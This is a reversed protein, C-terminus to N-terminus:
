KQIEVLFQEAPYAISKEPGKTNYLSVSQACSTIPKTILSSKNKYGYRAMVPTSVEECTLVVKTDTILSPIADYYIGDEGCLEFGPLEGTLALGSGTGSFLLTAKGDEIKASELVPGRWIGEAAYFKGMVAHALRTGVAEKDYPHIGDDNLTDGEAKNEPYLGTDINVSYTMNNVLTTAKKHEERSIFYTSEDIYRPLQVTAFYMEPTDFVRRWDTVLDALLEGYGEGHGEGQYWLAGRVTMKRLPHVMANYWISPTKSSDFALRDADEPPFWTYISTGGMCCAVIGVPINYKENIEKAFFYGVASVDKINDPGVSTWPRAENQKLEDIPTTSNKPWVLFHRINDNESQDIINQYLLKSTSGDYCQGVSWGMNSQGGLLYVEGFLIDEFTHRYGDETILELSYPGGYNTPGIYIEFWGNTVEGYFIKATNSKIEILKAAIKVDEAYKGWVRVPMNAQLVMGTSIAPSITFRAANEKPKDPLSFTATEVIKGAHTNNVISIPKVDKPMNIDGENKNMPTANNKRPPSSGCGASSILMSAIMALLLVVKSLRRM